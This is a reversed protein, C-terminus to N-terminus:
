QLEWNLTVSIEFATEPSAALATVLNQRFDRWGEPQSFHGADGVGSSSMLERGGVEVRRQIHLATQTSNRQAPVMRALVRVGTLDADKVLKMSVGGAAHTLQETLSCCLAVFSDAGLRQNEIGALLRKLAEAHVAEKTSWEIQTVKSADEPALKVASRPPVPVVGLNNKRRWVNLCAIRQRERQGHPGVIDFAYEGRWEESLILAAMDCIRPNSISKGKRGMNMGVREETDELSAALLREMARVTEAGLPKVKANTRLALKQGISQIVRLRVDVPKRDLSRALGDIAEASDAWVFFHLLADTAPEDGAQRNAGREWEAMMAPLIDPEGRRRLELAATVRAAQFPGNRLEDRLFVLVQPSANTGLSQVLSSRIGARQSARAGAMLAASADEPYRAVLIRAQGPADDGGMSVASILVQREGATGISRRWSEVAARTAALDGDKSLYSATTRRESFSRGAIRELIQLACDGVTLVLHSFYFDRHYGVSRSFTGDGLAAALQPVAAQGLRALQHAASNTQGGGLGFDDFIDCSGPQGWQHGNQDRLRFIWEKVQAEVPLKVLAEDTLLPHAEDEAIMRRLTATTASARAHHDSLKYSREITTFMSLLERRPVAPNGFSEVARWMLAHALDREISIRFTADGAERQSWAPLKAAEAYLQGSENTLGNRWCAWALVFVQSRQALREGFRRWREEDGPEKRLAGLQAEAYAKLDLAEFGVRLHEAAGPMSNTLRSEFLDLSVVVFGDGAQSLLFAPTYRNQPPQNARQIWVGTAVRVFPRDKVEPFGLGSFWKFDSEADSASAIQPIAAVLLAVIAALVTFAFPM